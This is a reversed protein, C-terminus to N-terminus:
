QASVGLASVCPAPNLPASVHHPFAVILFCLAAVHCQRSFYSNCSRLSYPKFTTLVLNLFSRSNLMFFLKNTDFDVVYFKFAFSKRRSIGVQIGIGADAQM